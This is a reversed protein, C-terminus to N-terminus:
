QFQSMGKATSAKYRISINMMQTYKRKDKEDLDTEYERELRPPINSMTYKSLGFHRVADKLEQMATVSEHTNLNRNTTLEDNIDYNIEDNKPIYVMTFIKRGASANTNHIKKHNMSTSSTRSQRIQKCSVSSCNNM